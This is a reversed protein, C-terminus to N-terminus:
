PQDIERLARRLKEAAGEYIRRAEALQDSISRFSQDIQTLKRSADEVSVKAVKGEAQAKEVAGKWQAQLSQVDMAAKLRAIEAQAAALRKRNEPTTAVAQIRDRASEAQKRAAELAEKPDTDKLKGFQRSAAAWADQAASAVQKLAKTGQSAAEDRDRPECGALMLVGLACSFCLRM